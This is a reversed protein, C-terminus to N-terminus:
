AQREIVEGKCIELVGLVQAITLVGVHQGIADLLSKLLTAEAAVRDIPKGISVVKVPMDDPECPKGCDYPVVGCACKGM